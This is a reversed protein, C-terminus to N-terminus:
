HPQTETNDTIVLEALDGESARLVTRRWEDNSLMNSFQEAIILAQPYNDYNNTSEANHVRHVVHYPYKKDETVLDIRYFENMYLVENAM